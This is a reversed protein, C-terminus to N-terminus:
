RRTWARESALSEYLPLYSDALVRDWTHLALVEGFANRRIRELTGPEEHFLRTTRDVAACLAQVSQEDYSFGTEGDRVKVLGGVRHVVPISGLLQAIFDTLGCPEYASPILFFDSAAYILSALSPDYRPVFALRGAMGPEAALGALMAEMDKEGQGLIVCMRGQGGHALHPLSGALIGIGKQGALRGVFAYLPGTPRAAAPVGLRELLLTRCLRKGELDGMSPDFRFPLGTAEPHRPDWPGPDIGNTVGELPVSRERFTRGLGGSLETGEEALLERAYQPSVTVLRAYSGALLLPDVTGNLAGKGLVTAPLGTLLRAFDMSWVDQHYGSGANHITVLSAAGSLPEAYRPDERLLAPLFATHGDHCHFVRPPDDLVLAAELASRQLILNLQHFDWHGSGRKRWKNEQEDEATYTYVGRIRSFRPSDVFLLRVGDRHVAIVRVGEEFFANGRDQDPLMISFSATVEGQLALDRGAGSRLFGYLPLVVSPSGGARAHAEALGRVVDKVGGAEALGAYERTVHWVSIGGSM